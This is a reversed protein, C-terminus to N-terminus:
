RVKSRIFPIDGRSLGIDRLERDTLSYLETKASSDALFLHFSNVLNAIFSSKNTNKEETAIAM